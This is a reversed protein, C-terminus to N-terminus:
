DARAGLKCYARARYLQPAYPDGKNKLVASAVVRLRPAGIGVILSSGV